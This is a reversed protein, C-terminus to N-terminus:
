YYSKKARESIGMEYVCFRGPCNLKSKLSRCVAFEEPFEVRVRVSTPAVRESSEALRNTVVSRQYGFRLPRGGESVYVGTEDNDCWLSWAAQPVAQYLIRSSNPSQLGLVGVCEMSSNKGVGHIGQVTSVKKPAKRAEVKYKIEFFNRTGADHDKYNLYHNEFFVKQPIVAYVAGSASKIRLPKKISRLGPGSVAKKFLHASIPVSDFKRGSGDSLKLSFSNGGNEEPQVGNELTVSSGDYVDVKSDFGTWGVSAISSIKKKGKRIVPEFTLANAGDKLSVTVNVSYSHHMGNSVATGNTFDGFKLRTIRNIRVSGVKKGNSYLPVSKKLTRCVRDESKRTPSVTPAVTAYYDADNSEACGTLCLSLAAVIM